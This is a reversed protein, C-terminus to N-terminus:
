DNDSGEIKIKRKRVPLANINAPNPYEKRNIQEDNGKKDVLIELFLIRL